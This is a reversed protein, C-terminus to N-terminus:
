GYRSTRAGSIPRRFETRFKGDPQGHAAEVHLVYTGNDLVVEIMSMKPSSSWEYDDNSAIEVLEGSEGGNETTLLSM